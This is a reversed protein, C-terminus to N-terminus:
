VKKHDEIHKKFAGKIATYLSDTFVDYVIGVIPVGDVEM